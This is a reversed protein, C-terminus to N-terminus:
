YGLFDDVILVKIRDKQFQGTIVVFDNCIREEHRCDVCYGVKTCPTNKNLRKADIPAAIQRVRNEAEDLDKVIKNTGVIVIVQDPGYIMPAVRSGNGDINYLEGKETVANTSTLFTDASFNARYIKKKDDGKLNSSYKDLFDINKERLFDIVGLEFLTMSDGVGVITNNPILKELLEFLETKDKIYIGLMNQKKLSEITREVRKDIFWRLNRDM